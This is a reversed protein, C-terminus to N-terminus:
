QIRDGHLRYRSGMFRDDELTEILNKVIAISDQLRGTAQEALTQLAAYPGFLDVLPHTIDAFLFSPGNYGLRHVDEIQEGDHIVMQGRFHSEWCSYELLFYDGKRKKSLAMLAKVPPWWKTNFQFTPNTGEAPLVSYYEGRPVTQGYMAHELSKCFEDSKKKLGVVALWNSCDNAMQKRRTRQQSALVHHCAKM